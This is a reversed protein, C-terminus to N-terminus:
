WRENLTQEIGIHLESVWSATVAGGASANWFAATSTILDDYIGRRLGQVASNITCVFTEAWGM